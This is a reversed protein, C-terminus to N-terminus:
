SSAPPPSAAPPEEKLRQMSTVFATLYNSGLLLAHSQATQRDYGEREFGAAAETVLAAVMAGMSRASAIAQDTIHVFKPDIPSTM